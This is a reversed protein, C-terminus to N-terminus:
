ISKVEYKQLLKQQACVKKLRAQPISELFNTWSPKENGDEHIQQEVTRLGSTGPNEMNPPLYGKAQGAKFCIHAMWREMWMQWEDDGTYDM